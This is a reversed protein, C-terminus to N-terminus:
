VKISLFRTKKTEAQNWRRLPPDNASYVNAQTFEKKITVPSSIKYISVKRSRAEKLQTHM